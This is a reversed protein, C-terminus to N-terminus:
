DRKLPLLGMNNLTEMLEAVDPDTLLAQITQRDLEHGNPSTAEDAHVIISALKVILSLKLEM